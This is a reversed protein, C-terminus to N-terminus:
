NKKEYRKEEKGKKGNKEEEEEEEEEEENMHQNVQQRPKNTATTTTTTAALGPPFAGSPFDARSPPPHIGRVAREALYMATTFEQWTLSGDGDQDALDWVRKLTSRPAGLSMLLPVADAGQVYRRGDADDVVRDEYQRRWRVVDAAAVPIWGEDADNEQHAGDHEGQPSGGAAATTSM